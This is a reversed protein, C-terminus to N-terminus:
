DEQEVHVDERGLAAIIRRITDRHLPVMGTGQLCAEETDLPELRDLLQEGQQGVAHLGADAAAIMLTRVKEDADWFHPDGHRRWAEYARRAVLEAQLLQEVTV